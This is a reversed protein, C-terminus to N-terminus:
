SGDRREPEGASGSRSRSSVLCSQDERNSIRRTERVWGDRESALELGGEQRLPRSESGCSVSVGEEEQARPALLHFKEKGLVRHKERSRLLTESQSSQKSM